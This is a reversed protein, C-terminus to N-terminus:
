FIAHSNPSRHILNGVKHVQMVQRLGQNQPPLPPIRVWPVTVRVGSKSNPAQPRVVCVVHPKLTVKRLFPGWQKVASWHYQGSFHDLVSITAGVSVGGTHGELMRLCQASELDGLRLTQDGGSVAHRGDPTLAVIRVSDNRAPQRYLGKNRVFAVDDMWVQRTSNRRQASRTQYHGFIIDTVVKSPFANV